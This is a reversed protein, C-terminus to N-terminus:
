LAHCGVATNKGPSGMSMLAQHAGYPQLTPCSQPAKARVCTYIIFFNLEFM